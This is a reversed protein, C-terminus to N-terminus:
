TDSAHSGGHVALVARLERRLRRGRLVPVLACWALLAGAAAYAAIIFPEHAM